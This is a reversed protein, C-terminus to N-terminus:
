SLAVSTTGTAVGFPDVVITYTGNAPFLVDFSPPGSPGSSGFGVQTANSITTGSTGGRSGSVCAYGVLPSVSSRYRASSFSGRPGTTSIGHGRRGSASTFADLAYM